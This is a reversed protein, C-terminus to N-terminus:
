YAGNGAYHQRERHLRNVHEREGKGHEREKELCEPCFDMWEGEIKRSKWRHLKKSQAADRFTMEGPTRAGCGACVVTYFGFHYEVSM